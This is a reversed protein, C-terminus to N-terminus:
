REHETGGNTAKPWAHGSHVCFILALASRGTVVTSLDRQLKAEALVHGKMAAQVEALSPTGGIGLPRDLASLTFVYHHQGSPPCPGGYGHKGFGNRGQGPTTASAIWTPPLIGTPRM